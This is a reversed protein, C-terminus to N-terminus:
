KGKAIGYRRFHFFQLYGHKSQFPESKCIGAHKHAMNIARTHRITLRLIYKNTYNSTHEQTDHTGKGTNCTYDQHTHAKQGTHLRGTNTKWTETNKHNSSHPRKLSEILSWRQRFSQGQGKASVTIGKDAQQWLIRQYRQLWFVLFPLNWMAIKWGDIERSKETYWQNTSVETFIALAFYLYALLFEVM